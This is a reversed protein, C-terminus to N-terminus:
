PMYIQTFTTVFDSDGEIISGSILWGNWELIGASYDLQSLVTIVSPRCVSGFSLSIMIFDM